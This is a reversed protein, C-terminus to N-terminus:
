SGAVQASARERLARAEAAWEPEPGPDGGRERISNMHAELAELSREVAAVAEQSEGNAEYAQALHFRVEGLSADNPKTAAEAEKLYSIAASPVGRKFLVWGLTDAVSASEPLLAKADQALDLARDLNTGSEAYIYALNNKAEPFDPRYRIADEYREIAREEDGSLEYLMGLMHHIQAEDPKVELAQEYTRAADDLRGMRAYLRALTEYTRLNQPDLSIAKQFAAEAAEADNDVRAMRGVLLQLEANEPDKEVAAALRQKAEDKRGARVDIQILNALIEHQGPMQQDALNLLTGAEELNGRALQIRGLAYFVEGGREAEPIKELESEAEDVRNLRVLSQAVLLRTRTQEPRELLYQRGRAICAEWEGLKYLVQALVQKADLLGANIELAQSLQNRSESYEERSALALGLLYHAQAWQPKSELAGRISRIAGDLDGAGLKLKADAFLANPNTPESELVGDLIARAEEVAGEQEGRYGKEMLVEAKQLKARKEDPALEIARNAAALAGDLDDNRARYASLVLYVRPDDPNETASREILEDAKATNGESRHLSALIYLLQTRLAGDEEQEVGKELLIYAEEKRELRTLLSALQTYAPLREEEEALELAKRLAGEQEENRGPGQKRLVRALSTYSIFDPHKETLSRSYGESEDLLDRQLLAKALARLASRDDPSVEVAKRYSDLAEDRRELSDLAQAHVLHARVNSADAGIVAATRSLAEEKEGALIALQSFELVADHHSPDLRVTERLEWFGERAKGAGLYAHALEYHVDAANPDLQLASKFEIIAERFREDEKYEKGRALHEQLKAADDQCAVLALLALVPLSLVFRSRTRLM